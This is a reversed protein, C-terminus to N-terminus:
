NPYLGFVLQVVPAFFKLSPHPSDFGPSNLVLWEQSTLTLSTVAVGCGVSDITAGVSKAVRPKATYINDWSRLGKPM